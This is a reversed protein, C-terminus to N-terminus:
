SNSFSLNGFCVQVKQFDEPVPVCARNAAYATVLAFGLLGTDM